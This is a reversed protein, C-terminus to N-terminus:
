TDPEEDPPDYDEEDGQQLRHDEVEEFAVDEPERVLGLKSHPGIFVQVRQSDDVGQRPLPQSYKAATNIARL